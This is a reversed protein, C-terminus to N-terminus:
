RGRDDFRWGHGADILPRRFRPALDLWWGRRELFEGNCGVRHNAQLGLRRQATLPRADFVADLCADHAVHTGASAHRNGSAAAYEPRDDDHLAAALDAIACAEADTEM